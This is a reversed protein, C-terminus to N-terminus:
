PSQRQVQVPDLEGVTMMRRNQRSHEMSLEAAKLSGDGDVGDRTRKAYIFDPARREVAEFPEQEGIPHAAPAADEDIVTISLSARPEADGMLKAVKQQLPM